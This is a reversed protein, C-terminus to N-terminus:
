YGLVDREVSEIVGDPMNDWALRWTRLLRPNVFLESTSARAIGDLHGSREASLRYCLVRLREATTPPKSGTKVDIFSTKSILDVEGPAANPCAADDIVAGALVIEEGEAALMRECRTVLARVLDRDARSFASPTLMWGHSGDRFSSWGALETAADICEDSLADGDADCALLIELLLEANDMDASTGFALVSDFQRKFCRALRGHGYRVRLVADVATGVAFPAAKLGTDPIPLEDALEDYSTASFLNLPLYGGKPQKVQQCLLSLSPLADQNAVLAM